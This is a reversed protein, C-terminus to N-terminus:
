LRAKISLYEHPAYPTHSDAPSAAICFCLPSLSNTMYTVGNNQLVITPLFANEGM